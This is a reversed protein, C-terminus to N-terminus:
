QKGGNSRLKLYEDLSMVGAPRGKKGRRSPQLGAPAAEARVEIRGITVQVAPGAPEAPARRAPDAVGPEDARAPVVQPRVVLAMGEHHTAKGPRGERTEDDGGGTRERVPRRVPPRDAPAVITREVVVQQETREIVREVPRVEVRPQPEGERRAPPAPLVSGAPETAQPSAVTAEPEPMAPRRAPERRPQLAGPGPDPRSLAEHGAPEPQARRPRLPVAQAEAPAPPAPRPAVHRAAMPRAEPIGTEAGAATEEVEPPLDPGAPRRPEFLAATRPRIREGGPQSRTVLHSLYDSM